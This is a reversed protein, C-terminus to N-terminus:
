RVAGAMLADEVEDPTPMASSCELRSAVIAGAANAHRMIRELDWGALLGHCLSGGFADGAGLGNLVTVPLPPVEASTGDRHVALVGKPGQKVVALEVGAELLAEAAAHPERVGTAIEVEDLNGVAVTTHRLAEAYFARASDEPTNGATSKWFMPRWDLDFVTTASKARHALAALTATRSPEESLGTGTVWFIRAERVADLDLDHADIELDPAKPQRYFYLPFDDPPFIECFTVPTPLGAVPTVWRDDVGFGRLAEHLYAGFPDEGTRTIVATRRGLRSAAVAVNTASGGLFKGFSTVQALPVGTRLPYLDVGIRGMTILDYAM